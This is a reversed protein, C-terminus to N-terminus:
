ISKYDKSVEIDSKSFIVSTKKFFKDHGKHVTFMQLWTWDTTAEIMHKKFIEFSFAEVSGM